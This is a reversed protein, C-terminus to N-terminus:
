AGAQKKAWADAELEFDAKTITKNAADFYKTSTVGDTITRVKRRGDPLRDTLTTEVTTKANATDVVEVLAEGDAVSITRIVDKRSNITAALVALDTYEIVELKM